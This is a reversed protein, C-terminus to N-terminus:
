IQRGAREKSLSPLILDGPQCGLVAAVSRITRVNVDEGNKIKYVQKVGVGASSALAAITLRKKARLRDILEAPAERLGVPSRMGLNLSSSELVWTSLASRLFEDYPPSLPLVSEVFPKVIQQLREHRDEPDQDARLYELAIANYVQKFADIMVRLHARESQRFRTLFVAHDGDRFSSLPQWVESIGQLSRIATQIAERIRARATQSLDPLHDLVARLSTNLRPNSSGPQSM